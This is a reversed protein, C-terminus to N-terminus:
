SRTTFPQGHPLWSSAVAHKRGGPRDPGHKMEAPPMAKPTCTASRRSSSHAKSPWPIFTSGAWTFCTRGAHPIKGAIREVDDHCECPKARVDPMAQLEDLIRGPGAAYSLIGCAAWTSPWSRPPRDSPRHIGQHQRRRDGPWCAPLRRRRGRPRHQQRRRQVAGAHPNVKASAERLAALTDATEGSQTVAIIVTNSTM